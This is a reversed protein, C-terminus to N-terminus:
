NVISFDPPGRLYISQKFITKYVFYYFIKNFESHLFLNTLLVVLIIVKLMLFLQKLVFCGICFHHHNTVIKSNNKNSYQSSHKCVDNSYCNTTHYHGCCCCAFHSNESNSSFHNHIVPLIGVQIFFLLTIFLTLLIKINKM